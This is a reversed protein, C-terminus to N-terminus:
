LSVATFLLALAMMILFGALYALVLVAYKSFTILGGQGYVQRMGKYTYVLPYVVGIFSAVGTIADPLKLYSAGRSVLIEITLLLFFFAHLHVVFLLHEVYYRKSLPYLAKMVLALFPLFLFLFAPVNDLLGAIFTKGGDETIRECIQKLREQTLRRKLWDPAKEINNSDCNAKVIAGDDDEIATANLLQQEVFKATEPNEALLSEQRLSDIIEQRAKALEEKEAQTFEPSAAEPGSAAPFLVNLVKSADFFAVIFFIVSLVLYTRFPPMYRARRGQLYDKTLHGPKLLLPVVTQWLRSDFELLDGFADKLLEWISILRSQSRQGCDGCYQGTLASGCNLCSPLPASAGGPLEADRLIRRRASFRDGFRDVGDQRMRAADREFYEQLAAESVPFYHVVRRTKGPDGSEEDLVQADRFTDLQLMQAVHHALWLEFEDRIENDVDLTVEYILKFLKRM